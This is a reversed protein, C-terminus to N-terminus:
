NAANHGPNIYLSRYNEPDPLREMSEPSKGEFFLRYTWHGTGCPNLDYYARNQLGDAKQALRTLATAVSAYGIQSCENFYMTAFEKGLIKEVREKDDLGAVWIESGNPLTMFGYQERATMRLGPFCLRACKPLTDLWISERVANSRLRIIAHRSGPSRLARILVARVLLFTKGSRSGGVILTHRQPGTLLKNGERQRETLEFSAM